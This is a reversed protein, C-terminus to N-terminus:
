GRGNHLVQPHSLLVKSIRRIKLPAANHAACAAAAQNCDIANVAGIVCRGVNTGVGAGPQRLAFDDVAVDFAREMKAQEVNGCALGLAGRDQSIQHGKRHFQRARLNQDLYGVSRGSPRLAIRCPQAPVRRPVRSNLLRYEEFEIESM